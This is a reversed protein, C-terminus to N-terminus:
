CASDGKWAESNERKKPRPVKEGDPSRQSRRRPNSEKTAETGGGPGLVGTAALGVDARFANRAGLAMARAVPRSVSGHRELLDLGVGLLRVKPDNVYPEVGGLFFASAGPRGTLRDAIRGVAAADAVAVTLGRDTLLRAAEDEIAM